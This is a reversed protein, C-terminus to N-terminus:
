CKTHYLKRPIKKIEYSKKMSVAQWVTNGNLLVLIQMIVDEDSHLTCHSFASLWSDRDDAIYIKCVYNGPTLHRVNNLYILHIYIPIMMSTQRETWGKTSKQM